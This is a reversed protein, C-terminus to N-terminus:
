TESQQPDAVDEVILEIKERGGWTNRRLHGVVHLLGRGRASLLAGIETDAARFAIADLRVGDPGTLQCRVHGSGVTKSFGCRHGAFVFRPEPNGSGFPGAKDLLEMLERTAGGGSLTADIELTPLQRAALVDSQLASCLASELEDFRTREVTLGAAMAHGGGKILIGAEVAARVATGLDVGAISRASGTGRTGQDWTIALAPRQYREVLRSAILGVLGKHWQESDVLTIPADPEQELRRDAAAMAEEIMDAELAKRAKNLQELEDAIGRAELDDGATLLRAGLSANGIRGGANIRPGLVYGLHYSTPESSLGSVDALARLGINRRAHLVKLGTAVFARNLGSLPVVDAVTALAVMDLWQRLDPQPGNCEYWGSARLHRATAVLLLFTVGAAALDGQGSLDDMRNPNILAFADPLQEDALHHDVVVVDVGRAKAQAIPEHSATGCDVTVILAAGEDILTAFAESNPGYGESLRDPIYIRARLGHAALFSIVLATSSAGDVDYDGFVAVSEGSKIARALREAGRDMDQLTSPDPMLDRLTPDLWHDVNALDVGRAALIRGLIEPVGLRQAIASAIPTRSKSLRDIWTFGRASRRVGLLPDTADDMEGAACAASM